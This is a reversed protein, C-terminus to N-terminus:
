SAFADFDALAFTEFFPLYIDLFVVYMNPTDEGRAISEIIDRQIGRFDPYGWYTRLIEQFKDAM